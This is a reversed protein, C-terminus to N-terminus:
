SRDKAGKQPTPADGLREGTRLRGFGLWAVQLAADVVQERPVERHEYWWGALGNTMWKVGEAALELELPEIALDPAGAALLAAIAGTAQRQLRAHLAVLERDAPPDRFVMRWAFPHSEVFEFFADIGAALQDLPDLGAAGVREGVHSLLESGQRELLESQLARKSAFHDYVVAKTIGAAVAIEELSVGDYGRKALLEEAASEIRARRETRSVRSKYPLTRSL